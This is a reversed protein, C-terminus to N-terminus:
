HGGDSCGAYGRCRRRLRQGWLGHARGQFRRPFDRQAVGADPHHELLAGSLRPEEIKADRIERERSSTLPTRLLGSGLHRGAPVEISVPTGRRHRDAGVLFGCVRPAASGVAPTCPPGKKRAM